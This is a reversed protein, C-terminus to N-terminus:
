HKVNICVCVCLHQPAQSPTGRLLTSSLPQSWHQETLPPARARSSAPISRHLFCGQVATAFPRDDWACRLRCAHMCAHMCGFGTSRGTYAYAGAAAGDHPQTLGGCWTHLVPTGGEVGAPQPVGRLVVPPFAACTSAFRAAAPNSGDSKSAMM